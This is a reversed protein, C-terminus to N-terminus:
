CTTGSARDGRDPGADGAGAGRARLRGRHARPRAAGAGPLRAPPRRVAGRGGGADTSRAAWTAGAAEFCRRMTSPRRTAPPARRRRRPGLLVVDADAALGMNKWDDVAACATGTSAARPGLADRGAGRSRRSPRAPTSSPRRLLRGRHAGAARLPRLRVTVETVVGLTGESGVLLAPSTTAPSARPPAGASGSWSAPAPSSRSASCTTARHRRVQRLLAGGANTAVNGGITSWPSSAPDPPYWLGHEASPRGCTTTSSAPSSSPSGSSAPRDRPDRDMRELAVVVCGDIANAGGSLGTGAGRAVVPVGHEVCVGSSRRCRRPPADARVVAVRCRRVAGVRGRRPQLARRVPTTM